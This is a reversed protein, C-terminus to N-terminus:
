QFGTKIIPYLDLESMKTALFILIIQQFMHSLNLSLIRLREVFACFCEERDQLTEKASKIEREEECM